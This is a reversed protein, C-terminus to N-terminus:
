LIKSIINDARITAETEAEKFDSVICEVDDHTVQKGFVGINELLGEIGEVAPLGRNCHHVMDKKFRTPIEQQYSISDLPFSCLLLITIHTGQNGTMM